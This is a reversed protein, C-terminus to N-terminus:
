AHRKEDDLQAALHFLAAGSASRAAQEVIGADDDFGDCVCGLCTGDLGRHRRSLGGNDRGREGACVCAEERMGGYRALQFPDSCHGNIEFTFPMM